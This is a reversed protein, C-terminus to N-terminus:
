WFPQSRALINYHWGDSRNYNMCSALWNNELQFHWSGNTCYTIFLYYYGERWPLLLVVFFCYLYQYQKKDSINKTESIMNQVSIM